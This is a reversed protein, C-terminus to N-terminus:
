KVVIDGMLVLCNASDFCPRLCNVYSEFNNGEDYIKLLLCFIYVIHLPVSYARQKWLVDGNLFVRRCQCYTNLTM